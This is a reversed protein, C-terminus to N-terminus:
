PNPQQTADLIASAEKLIATADPDLNGWKIRALSYTDELSKRLAANVTELDSLGWRTRQGFDALDTESMSLIIDQTEPIYQAKLKAWIGDISDPWGENPRHVGVGIQANPCARNLLALLTQIEEPLLKPTM